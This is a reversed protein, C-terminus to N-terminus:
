FPLTGRGREREIMKGWREVRPVKRAVEVSRVAEFVNRKTGGL